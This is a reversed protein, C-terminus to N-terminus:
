SLTESSKGPESVVILSLSCFPFAVSPASLPPVETSERLSTAVCRNIESPHPKLGGQASTGVVQDQELVILFFFFSFDFCFGLM